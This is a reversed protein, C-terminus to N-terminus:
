ISCQRMMFNVLHVPSTAKIFCLINKNLYLVDNLFKQSTPTFPHTYVHLSYFESSNLKGIGILINKKILSHNPLILNDANDTEKIKIKWFPLLSSMLQQWKLKFTNNFCFKQKISKRHKIIGNNDFFQYVFNQSKKPFYRFFSPIKRWQFISILGFFNLSYFFTVQFFCLFLCEMSVFHKQLVWSM